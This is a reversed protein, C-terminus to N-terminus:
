LPTSVNEIRRVAKVAFVLLIVAILAFVINGILDVTGKSGFVPEQPFATCAYTIMAGGAAALTHLPTWTDRRSWGVLLGAGLLYIVLYVGVLPWGRVVAHLSMFALCLGFTCLGVVIPHPARGTQPVSNRRVLISAVVVVVVAVAASMLQLPSAMFKETRQTGFYVMAAGALFLLTTVVLGFNGLWPTRARSAFLAEVVAIPVTVSWVTHLTLVFLTWWGGIGLPPIAAEALLHLGLYSPNFLTQIVLGEEILGYALALLIVTPWGGGMRRSIERVLLAGGGYLPALAVLAGLADIALNGLLYEAVYPSCFFLVVAPAIKRFRSVLEPSSSKASSTTM